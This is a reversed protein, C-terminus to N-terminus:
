TRTVTRRDEEVTAPRPAVERAPAVEVEYDDAATSDELQPARTV